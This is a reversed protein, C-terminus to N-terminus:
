PEQQDLDELLAALGLLIIDDDEHPDGIHTLLEFRDTASATGHRTHVDASLANVADASGTGETVSAVVIKHRLTSRAEGWAFMRLQIRIWTKGRTRRQQPYNLRPPYNGELSPTTPVLTDAYGGAYGGAYAM